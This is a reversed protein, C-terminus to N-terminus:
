ELTTLPVFPPSNRGNGYLILSTGLFLPWQNNIRRNMSAMSFVSLSDSVNDLGCFLSWHPFSKRLTDLFGYYMFCLKQTMRVNISLQYFLSKFLRFNRGLVLSRSLSTAWSAKVVCFSLNVKAVQMPRWYEFLFNMLPYSFQYCCLPDCEVSM